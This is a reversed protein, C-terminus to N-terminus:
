VAIPVNINNQPIAFNTKPTKRSSSTLVSENLKKFNCSSLFNVISGGVAKALNVPVANGIQKYQENIFGLFNWKEPFTQIRAYDDRNLSNPSTKLQCFKERKDIQDIFEIDIGKTTSGYAGLVKTIFSQMHTGFSTTISTGLVRPYILVKALSEPNSNGELYNSLYYLLFPNVQFKKISNLKKTNKAHSAILSDKFWFKFKQLIEEKEIKTM